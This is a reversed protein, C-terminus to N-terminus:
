KEDVAFYAPFVSYFEIRINMRHKSKLKNKMKMLRQSACIASMNMNDIM